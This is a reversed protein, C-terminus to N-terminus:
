RRSPPFNPQPELQRNLRAGACPKWSSIAAPNTFNRMAASWKAADVMRSLAERSLADSKVLVSDPTQSRPM